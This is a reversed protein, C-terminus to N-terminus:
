IRIITYKNYINKIAQFIITGCSAFKERLKTVFYTRQFMLANEQRKTAKTQAGTLHTPSICGHQM